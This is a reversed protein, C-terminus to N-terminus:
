ASLHPDARADGPGYTWLDIAAHNTPGEHAPTDSQAPWLTQYFAPDRAWPQLVRVYFDFGAMEARVLRYDVQYPIPWGSADIAALRDLYTQLERHRRAFAAATYDPVGNTSPPQEFARWDAFLGVLNEYQPPIGAGSGHDFTLAM